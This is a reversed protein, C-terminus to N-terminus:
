HLPEDTDSRVHQSILFDRFRRAASSLGVEKNWLMGVEPFTGPMEFDVLRVTGAASLERALGLPIIALRNSRNIIELTMNLDSTDISDIPADHGLTAVIRSFYERTATGVLPLCWRMALLSRLSVPPSIATSQSGAVIAARNRMLPVSALDSTDAGYSIFGFGLQISGARLQSAIVASTSHIIEFQVDPNDECFQLIRSAVLPQLSNAQIGVQVKGKTGANLLLFLDGLAGLEGLIRKATVVIHQGAITATVSNKHREFLEMGIADEVEKLTKSVAAASINLLRGAAGISGIEDIAVITRLHRM